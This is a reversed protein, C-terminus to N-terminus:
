DEGNRLLPSTAARLASPPPCCRKDCELVMAEAVREVSKLVESAPIRITEIGHSRIVADRIPDREPRDGMDHAIGDIEFGLKAPPCYFEIVYHEVPHQRRFKIGLPHRKLHKWLLVEPLSMTKRLKRAKAWDHSPKTKTM